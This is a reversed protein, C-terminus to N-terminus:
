KLRETSSATGLTVPIQFRMGDVHRGSLTVRTGPPYDLLREGLDATGDLIDREIGEIVDGEKLLKATVSQKAVGPQMGRRDGQIWAGRLPLSPRTTLFDLHALDYARVGLTAHIIVGRTLIGTLASSLDSAPLVRWGDADRSELLGVLRGGGDWVAGGVMLINGEGGVFFRRSARESSVPDISANDARVDLVVEPSVHQRRPEVWVQMGGIVDTARVLATVPLDRAQIKIFVADTATDRIAQEIAYAQGRFAIAVDAVRLDKIVTSPMVLWGDSTLAVAAGMAKERGSLLDDGNKEFASKKYVDLVPSARRAMFFAMSPNLTRSADLPFVEVSSSTSSTVGERSSSAWLRQWIETQREVIMNAVLSGAGISVAVSVLVCVGLLPLDQLASHLPRPM